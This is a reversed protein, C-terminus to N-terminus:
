RSPATCARCRRTPTSSSRPSRPTATSRRRIQDGHRRPRGAPVAAAARDPLRRLRDAGPVDGGRVHQPRLLLRRQPLPLALLPLRDRGLVPREPLPLQRSRDALPGTLLVEAPGARLVHPDLARLLHGTRRPPDRRSQQRRRPRPRARLHHRRRGPDRIQRGSTRGDKPFGAVSQPCSVRCSVKM